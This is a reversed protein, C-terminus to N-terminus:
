NENMNKSYIEIQAYFMCMRKIIASDEVKNHAIPLLLNLEMAHSQIQM